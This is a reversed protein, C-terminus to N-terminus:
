FRKPQPLRIPGFVEGSTDKQVAEVVVEDNERLSSGELVEAYMDDSVGTNVPVASLVNGKKLVWVVSSAGEAQSYNDIKASPPPIFRLAPKPVRLVNSREAVLVRVDATMGPKLLGDPNDVLIVVDYTVVNNSVTPQNRVQQVIGEFSKDRYADVTFYARQGERVRGIDAESVSAVVRIQSTNAAVVFLPQPQTPSVVQGVNANRSLIVGDIPSRVTTASLNYTAISLATNSSEVLALAELYKLRSQEFEERSILNKRYLEENSKYLSLLVAAQAKAKNLEAKAENLKIKYQEPDIQLLKDQTKVESNFDVYVEKVTGSVQPKVDITVIPNVSGTASVFSRIGGRDVKATKYILEPKRGSALKVFFIIVGLALIALIIYRPKINRM